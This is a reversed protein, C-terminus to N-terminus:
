KVNVESESSKKEKPEQAVAEQGELDPGKEHNVSKTSGAVTQSLSSFFMAKIITTLM